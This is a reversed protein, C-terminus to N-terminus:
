RIYENNKELAEKIINQVYQGVHKKDEGTLDKTYIPKGFTFVVTEPSIKPFHDEFMAATNSIAVPIIPCGSKEAVKMSGEKFPLMTGDKSRTGEPFIFINIGDKLYEIAKLITKMGQKVDKRDLFLCRMFYMWAHLSPYKAFEKKAIFGTPRNMFTYGIIVDFFSSHNAVFVCPSDNPINDLGNVIIKSGSFRTVVKLGVNKVFVYCIRDCLPLNFKSIILMVLELPLTLILFLLLYLASVIFRIM